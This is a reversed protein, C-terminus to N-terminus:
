HNWLWWIKNEDEECEDVIYYQQCSGEEQFDKNKCAIRMKIKWRDRMM